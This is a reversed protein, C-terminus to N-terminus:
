NDEVRAEFLLDIRRKAGDGVRRASARLFQMRVVKGRSLDPRADNLADSVAGAVTKAAQFGAGDNVISVTFRHVAGSGSKDNRATVDEPGLSVYIQPIAGTPAADYIHPGVLAAVNADDLLHQYVATQLAASAGYSM